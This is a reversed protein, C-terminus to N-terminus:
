IHSVNKSVKVGVHPHTTTRLLRETSKVTTFVFFKSALIVKGSCNRKKQLPLFGMM